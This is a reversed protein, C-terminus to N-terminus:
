LSPRFWEQRSLAPDEIDEPFHDRFISHWHDLRDGKQWTIAGKRVSFVHTPPGEESADFITSLDSIAAVRIANSLSKLCRSGVKEIPVAHERFSDDCSVDRM